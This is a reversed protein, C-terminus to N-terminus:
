KIQRKTRPKAHDKKNPIHIDYELKGAIELHAQSILHDRSNMQQIYKKERKNQEEEMHEQFKDEIVERKVADLDAIKAQTKLFSQREKEFQAAESERVRLLKKLDSQEEKSLHEREMMYIQDHKFDEKRTRMNALYENLQESSMEDAYSFHPLVLALAAFIM